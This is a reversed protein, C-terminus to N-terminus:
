KLVVRAEDGYQVTKKKSIYNMVVETEIPSSDDALLRKAKKLPDFGDNGDALYESVALTYRGQPDIPKEGILAQVVRSGKPKEPAIILKMGSVHPFRGTASIGLKDGIGEFLEILQAGTVELKYIHNEFPLLAKVHMKTLTGVPIVTNSRLAGGNALGIDAQMADRFADAILYGAATERMRVTDTRADLAVTTEGIPASLAQRLTTEYQNLIAVINADQDLNANLPVLKWEIRDIRKSAKNVHLQAIVADKADSGAKFLPKGAVVESVLFHDHGGLILDVRCARAVKRDDEMDLHTLAVVVEAKKERRLRRALGCATSVANRFEWEKGPRSVNPTAATIVGIFAVRIGDVAKVVYPTTGAFPKKSGKKVINAALWPFSSEAIREQLVDPGYDFEHNGLVAADFQLANLMAIMQKGKFESSIVSPSIADGGFTLLARNGTDSALKRASALRALGVREGNVTPVQYVDNVHVISIVTNGSNDAAICLLPTMVMWCLLIKALKM